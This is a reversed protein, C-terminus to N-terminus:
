RSIQTWDCGWCDLYHKYVALMRRNAEAVSEDSDNILTTEMFEDALGSWRNCYELSGEADGSAVLKAYPKAGDVMSDHLRIGSPSLLGRRPWLPCAIIITLADLTQGM